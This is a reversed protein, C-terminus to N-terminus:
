ERAFQATATRIANILAESESSTYVHVWDEQERWVHYLITTDNGGFSADFRTQKEDDMPTSATLDQLAAVDVENDTVRDLAALLQPLATEDIDVSATFVEPEAPTSCGAFLGLLAIVILHRM